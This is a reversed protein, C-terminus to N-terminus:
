RAYILTAPTATPQIHIEHFGTEGLWTRYENERWGSGNTSHFVINASFLLVFPHGSGDDNVLYENLILTGGTRLTRRFKRFMSLNEDPTFAHAMHSYVILDYAKEALTVSFMDGDITEFRSGIGRKTLITRAIQNVNAWDIQTAQIEANERLFVESFVGTGGGVDLIRLPGAAKIGLYSAAAQAAPASLTSVANVLRNWYPHEPVGQLSMVSNNSQVADAFGQWKPMTELNLMVFEGVYSEKGKVLFMSASATNRYECQDVTLLGLGTLADLLARTTRESLGTTRSTDEISMAGKELHDFVSFKVAAGIVSTAWYGTVARLIPELSADHHGSIM